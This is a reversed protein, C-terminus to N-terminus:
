SPVHEGLVLRELLSMDARSLHAFPLIGNHKTALKLAGPRLYLLIALLRDQETSSNRGGYHFCSAPDALYVTGQDGTLATTRPQGGLLQRLVADELYLGNTNGPDTSSNRTRAYSYNSKERILASDTPSILHIPGSSATVPTCHVFVKVIRNDAWDLHSLLTHAGNYLSPIDEDRVVFSNPNYWFNATALVPVHGLYKAVMGVLRPQLALRFLPSRVIAPDEYDEPKLFNFKKRKKGETRRIAKDRLTQRLELGQAVVANVGPIDATDLRLYGIDEDLCIDADIGAALKRRLQSNFVDDAHRRDIVRQRLEHSGAMLDDLSENVAIM